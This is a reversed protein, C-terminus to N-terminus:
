QNSLTTQLRLFKKGDIGLPTSFIQRQNGSPVGTQDVGNTIRSVDNNTWIGAGLNVISQGFVGLNPDNTRVIATISLNSSTVANSMAIGNTATPSTAGGISYLLLNTSNLQAGQAWSNFTSGAPSVTGNVALQRTTAGTSAFDVNGSFSGASAGSLRVSITTTALSGGTPALSVSSSYTTGNSSVEYGAPPTATLNGTLNAGSVSVTQVASPTGQTTSFGNFSGTVNITPASLLDAQDRPQVQFGTDFPSNTDFQGAIGTVTVPYSPTNTATSASQIRVTVQNSSADQLVVNGGNTWAGSVYSLAAIRVVRSQYALGNTNFEPVTATVPVPDGSSGMNIVLAPDALTLQVLGNFQAVTGVVAYTNGRVQPGVVASQSFISIGHTADQLASSTAGSGLRGVSCVGEVAVTQGLLVPVKTTPDANRANAIPVTVRLTPQSSITDFIGGAGRSEVQFNSYAGTNTVPTSTDPTVLGSVAISITNPSLANLGTITVVQGTVAV